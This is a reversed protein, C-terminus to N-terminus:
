LRIEYDTHNGNLPPPTTKKLKDLKSNISAVSIYGVILILLAIGACVLGFNEVASGDKGILVLVLGSIFCLWTKIIIPKDKAMMEARRREIAADRTQREHELKEPSRPAYIFYPASKLLLADGAKAFVLMTPVVPFDNPKGLIERIKDSSFRPRGVTNAKQQFKAMAEQHAAEIGMNLLGGFIGVAAGAGAAMMKSGQGHGALGALSHTAAGTIPVRIGGVPATGIEEATVDGLYQSVYNATLQDNVGFFIQADANAFYTNVAHEGYLEYFQGLDQLFPWLSVGYGRMLGAASTILDMRGLSFFEDLMFLCRGSQAGHGALDTMMTMLGLQTFLRLFGGRTKLHDARVCLYLTGSGSKLTSLDFVPLSGDGLTDRFAADSIWATHTEAIGWASAEVSEKNSLKRLIAAAASRAAGSNTPHAAMDVALAPLEEDSLLLINRVTLLNKKDDEFNHLVFDIIGAIISAAKNDWQGHRADFRRIFGDALNELDAAYARSQPDLLTLPNIACRLAIAEKGAIHFPDLVGVTQGKAARIGATETANEGKPDIVLAAGEWRKLNPIILCAGKGSGASAITILNRETQIGIEEDKGDLGLFISNARYAYRSPETFSYAM